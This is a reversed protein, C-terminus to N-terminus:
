KSAMETCFPEPPSLAATPLIRTYPCQRIPDGDGERWRRSNQYISVLKGGEGGGKRGIRSNQIHVSDLKTEKGM